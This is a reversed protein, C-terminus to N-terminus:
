AIRLPYTGWARAAESVAELVTEPVAWPIEGHNDGLIFGGGPGGRALAEKVEAEAMASTWSAMAIGNLNGVVALRGACAGKVEALDERCSAGVGLTGTRALLDVIGLSRGSALHTVTPGGLAALTHRAVRFGTEEYMSTPLMDPSALPDSYVLATAGADLQARGWAVTFAENVAMLRWFRPRDQFLLDLYGEFGLLMVPLSFPSIVSGLVPVDAGARERLGRLVELGKQLGPCDQIRPPELTDIAAPNAIVPPGSNPPGDEVFVAEGGWAEYEAAGYLAGVLGDHGYRRRMRLQAEVPNGPDSFYDKLGLGLERAGHLTLSLLFPVRDGERHELAAQVREAATMPQM